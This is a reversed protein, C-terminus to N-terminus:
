SKSDDEDGVPELTEEVEAEAVAADLEAETPEAEQEVEPSTYSPESYVPVYSPVPDPHPEHAPASASATTAAPEPAREKEKPEEPKKRATVALQMVVGAIGLAGWAALWLLHETDLAEPRRLMRQLLAPQLFFLTGAVVGAAGGFATALVIVLRQLLLAAVGGIVGAAVLAFVPALMGATSFAGAALLVGLGAGFVFLGLYYLLVLLAAGIGGGLLGAGLAAATSGETWAYMLGGALLGGGLLGGVALMLKFLRYGYLCNVLGVATCIGVLSPIVEPPLQIQM